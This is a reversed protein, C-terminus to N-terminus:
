RIVIRLSLSQPKEHHNSPKDILDNQFYQFQNIYAKAFKLTFRTEPNNKSSAKGPLNFRPEHFKFKPIPTNYLLAM